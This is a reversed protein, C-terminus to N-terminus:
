KHKKSYKIIFNIVISSIGILWTFVLILVNSLLGYALGYNENLGYVLFVQLVFFNTTGIGGPAPFAWGVGVVFLIVAAFGPGYDSTFPLAKLCTYNMIVLMLWIAATLGVFIGYKKIKFSKLIVTVFEKAIHKLKEYFSTKKVMLFAISLLLIISAAAMIVKATSINEGINRIMDKFLLDYLRDAEAMVCIALGAFLIIVDYIRETVVTALSFPVDINESKKLSICRSIEGLKPTFTNVLYAINAAHFTNWTGVSAGANELLIKWRYSRLFQILALCVGNATLWYIDATKIASFIESFSKERFTFYLFIGGIVIGILVDRLKRLMRQRDTLFM